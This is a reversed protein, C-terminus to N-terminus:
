LAIRGSILRNFGTKSALEAAAALSKRDMEGVTAIPELLAIEVTTQGLQLFRWLHSWLTMHGYWAFFSRWGCGMPLGNLRTYAIAAPQVTMAQGHAMNEAVNFLASKFPLMHNGDGSTAEPFFILSRHNALRENMDDRADTTRTRRREVFVTDGIRAMTGIIPWTSVEAKSVFEVELAAGFALIDLYSIHNSAILLPRNTSMQGHTVVRMGFFFCLGRFYFRRWHTTKFGIGKVLAILPVVVLTWFIFLALRASALVVGSPAIPMTVAAATM